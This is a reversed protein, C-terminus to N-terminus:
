SRTIFRISQRAAGGSDSSSSSSSNSGLELAALPNAVLARGSGTLARASRARAPSPTRSAPSSVAAVEAAVLAAAANVCAAGRPSSSVEPRWKIHSDEVDWVRVTAGFGGSLVTGDGLVAMSWIGDRHGHVQPELAVSWLDPHLVDWVHVSGDASGSLLREGDPHLALCMVMSPHGTLVACNLSLTDWLRVSGDRASSALRGDALQVLANICTTHGRLQARPARSAGAQLSWLLVVGDMGGSALCPLAALPAASSSSTSSTSTSTSSTSSTSASASASKDWRSSGSSGSHVQPLAVAALACVDDRGGEVAGEDEHRGHGWLTLQCEESRGEPAWLRVAGDEGASALRGDPLAALALVAGRHASLMRLCRGSPSGSGSRPPAVEWLGVLGDRGGSALCNASLAALCLVAASHGPLAAVCAGEVWGGEGACLAFIRVLADDSASAVYQQQQQQQASSSGEAVAALPPLVALARVHVHETAWERAERPHVIDADAAVRALHARLARAEEARLDELGAHHAETEEQLRALTETRLEEVHAQEAEAHSLARQSHHAVWQESVARGVRRAHALEPSDGERPAHPHPDHVTLARASGLSAAVPQQPPSGDGGPAAFSVSKGPRKHGSPRPLAPRPAGSGGAPGGSSAIGGRDRSLLCGM